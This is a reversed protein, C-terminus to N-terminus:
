NTPIDYVEVSPRQIVESMEENEEQLEVPQNKRAMKSTKIFYYIVYGLAGTTMIALNFLIIVFFLTIIWFIVYFNDSVELTIDPWHTLVVDVYPFRRQNLENHHVLFHFILVINLLYHCIPNLKPLTMSFHIDKKPM